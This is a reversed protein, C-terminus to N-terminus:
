TFDASKWCGQYHDNVVGVAQLYAYIITPGVFTMGRRKLAKSIDEALPTTAPIDTVKKWNGRLPTGDVHDWLWDAFTGYEDQMDLFVRANTRA